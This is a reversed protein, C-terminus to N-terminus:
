FIFFKNMKIKWLFKGDRKYFKVRGGYSNLDIRETSEFNAADKVHDSFYFIMNDQDIIKFRTNQYKFGHLADKYKKGHM